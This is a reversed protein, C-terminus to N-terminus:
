YWAWPYACAIDQILMAAILFSHTPYVNVKSESQERPEWETNGAGCQSRWRSYGPYFEFDLDGNHCSPAILLITLMFILVM